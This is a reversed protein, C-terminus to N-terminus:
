TIMRVCAYMRLGVVTPCPFLLSSCHLQRLGTLTILRTPLNYWLETIRTIYLSRLSCLKFFAHKKTRNSLHSRSRQRCICSESAICQSCHLAKSKLAFVASIHTVGQFNQCPIMQQNDTYSAINIFENQCCRRDTKGAIVTPSRSKRVCKVISKKM